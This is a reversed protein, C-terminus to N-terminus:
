KLADKQKRKYAPITQFAEMLADNDYDSTSLQGKIGFPIEQADENSLPKGNSDYLQNVKQLLENEKQEFDFVRAKKTDAQVPTAVSPKAGGLTYTKKDAAKGLTLNDTSFGTAIITVHIADELSDDSGLGMIVSADEGALQLVYEQISDVESMTAEKNPNSTINILIDSAGQIDNNNLLPSLLADKIASVARDEGQGIGSGMLAVGSNRMVTEVDAFDVNIHGHTTIIEAIGKAGVALINDAHAFANSVGLDGYMEKLRDNKIVLLADVVKQMQELGAIAQKIRKPGEFKFPITVIGVTLIDKEQAAQAIIPAAGTGTGGGMGATVFIMKTKPSLLEEIQTMSEIAAERGRDPKSGAGLGETLTAGLQVKVPIDSNDLAQFDTNCIAFDVDKIGQKYMFNVANSGGGGVGIVKIISENHNQEAFDLLESM